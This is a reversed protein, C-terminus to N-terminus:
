RAAEVLSIQLLLEDDQPLELDDYILHDAATLESDLYADVFGAEPLGSYSMQMAFIVVLVGTVCVILPRAVSPVFDWVAGASRSVPQIQAMMRSAFSPDPAFVRQREKSLFGGPLLGNM